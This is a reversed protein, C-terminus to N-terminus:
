NKKYVCYLVPTYNYKVLENCFVHIVIYIHSNDMNLSISVGSVM